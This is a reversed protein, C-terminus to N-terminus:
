QCIIIGRGILYCTSIIGMIIFGIFITWSLNNRSSWLIEDWILEIDFGYIIINKIVRYLLGLIFLILIIGLIVAGGILITTITNM